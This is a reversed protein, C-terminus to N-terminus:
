LIDVAYIIDECSRKKENKHEIIYDLHWHHFKKKLPKNISADLPQIFRTLGPPILVYAGNCNKFTESLTDDYHTIAKDIILIKTNM